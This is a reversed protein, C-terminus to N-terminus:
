PIFNRSQIRKLTFDFRRGFLFPERSKNIGVQREDVTVTYSDHWLKNAKLRVTVVDNKDIGILEGLGDEYVVGSLPQWRM